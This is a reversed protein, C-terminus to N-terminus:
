LLLFIDSLVIININCLVSQITGVYNALFHSPGQCFVFPIIIALRSNYILKFSEIKSKNIATNVLWILKFKTSRSKISPILWGIVYGAMISLTTKM